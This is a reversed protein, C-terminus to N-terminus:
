QNEVRNSDWPPSDLELIQQLDAVDDCLQDIIYQKTEPTPPTWDDSPSPLVRSRIKDRLSLSLFPRLFRRYFKTEIFRQWGPTLVPRSDSPNHIRDQKAPVHESSVGLFDYIQKMTDARNEVFDEFRIVCLSEKGFAEIWPHVQMAYRSYDILEPHQRICQNIDSDMSAFRSDLRSSVFRHHSIARTLPERVLYIIKPATGTFIKKASPVADALDPLKSYDPCVEGCIQGPKAKKYVEAYADAPASTCLLNSEKDPLFIDPHSLLDHYLTTTGSKMAGIVLFDPRHRATPM